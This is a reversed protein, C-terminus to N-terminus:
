ICFLIKMTVSSALSINVTMRLMQLIFYVIRTFLIDITTHAVEQASHHYTKYLFFLCRLIHLMLNVFLHETSFLGSLIGWKIIWLAPETHDPTHTHTNRHKHWHIYTHTNPHTFNPYYFPPLKPLASCHFICPLLSSLSLCVAALAPFFLSVLSSPYSCLSSLLSPALKLGTLSATGVVGPRGSRLVWVRCISGEAGGGTFRM